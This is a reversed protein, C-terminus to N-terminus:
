PVASLMKFLKSVSCQALWYNLAHSPSFMDHSEDFFRIEHVDLRLAEAAM